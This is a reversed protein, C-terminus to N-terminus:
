KQVASPYSRSPVYICDAFRVSDVTASLFVDGDPGSGTAGGSKTVVRVAEGPMLTGKWIWGSGTGSGPSGVNVHLMGRIEYIPADSRNRLLVAYESGKDERYSSGAVSLRLRSLDVEDIEAPSDAQPVTRFRSVLDQEGLISPMGIASERVSFKCPAPAAPNQATVVSGGVMLAFLWAVAVRM